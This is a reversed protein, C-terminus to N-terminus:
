YKKVDYFKVQKWKGKENNQTKEDKPKHDVIM